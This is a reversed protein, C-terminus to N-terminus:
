RVPLTFWFVSGKNPESEVWIRGGHREVIEKCITLGLGTGQPKDTLNDDSVQKFKEFIAEQFNEPVGRGTDAVGILLTYDSKQKATVTITGHETFKAANSLLNVLVQLLRDIDGMTTPLGPTIESRLQLQKHEFLTTTAAIARGILDGIIVKDEHWVLKGSEIKALDLVDNILATLRESESVVINLNELIQEAARATKAENLDTKPLIREELRKKILKSFGMISTLPTRFEHSVTNIFQSKAENLAQLRLAEAKADNRNIQLRYFAFIVGLTALFYLLYAWWTAWWAALVVVEISTGEENWVRDNNSGRVRFIYTGPSLNTYTASHATGLYQWDRDFGEMKCAFHNKSPDAFDLAAFEFSIIKADPPLVVRQAYAIAKDLPSGPTKQSVSKGSIKFDTLVVPPKHTNAQLMKEPFFANFGEIGGFFMEGDASKHWALTNFELNQLGDRQDFNRFTRNVLNFVSLGKNTSLWLNGSEDPLIGYVVMDPLGDKDTFKEFFGTQTDLRNLGGGGTGIFLFRDPASPDEAICKVLDHSLSQPNHRDNQFKKFSRSATDFCWLGESTGVWIKGDRSQFLVPFTNREYLYIYREADAFFPFREFMGKKPDFRRLADPSAMWIVGQKDEIISTPAYHGTWRSQGALEARWVEIKPKNKGKWDTIRVLGWNGSGAWIAGKKDEFISHISGIDSDFFRFGKTVEEETKRQADLRFLQGNTPAMWIQGNSTKYLTRLSRGKWLGNAFRRANDNFKLLGGGRTGIWILGGRDELIAGTGYVLPSAPAGRMPGLCNVKGLALDVWFTGEFGGLWLRGRRDEVCASFYRWTRSTPQKTAGFSDPVAITTCRGKRADWCILQRDQAMWIKQDRGKEFFYFFHNRSSDTREMFDRLIPDSFDSFNQDIQAEEGNPGVRLRYPKRDLKSFFGNGVADWIPPVTKKDPLDKIKFVRVSAGELAKAGSPLSVKTLGQPTGGQWINGYPDEVIKQGPTPVELTYFFEKERDFLALGNGNSVWFRGKGDEFIHDVENSALSLTDFPDYRYTTFRYGDFRNLGDKTGVWLFGKSDQLLCQAMNQSLGMDSSLLEFDLQQAALPMAGFCMALVTGM